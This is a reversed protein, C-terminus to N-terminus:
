LEKVKLLLRYKTSDDAKGGFVERQHYSESLKRWAALYASPTGAVRFRGRLDPM